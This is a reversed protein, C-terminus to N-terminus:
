KELGLARVLAEAKQAATAEAVNIAHSWNGLFTGNDWLQVGPNMIGMLIVLYDRHKNGVSLHGFKQSLKEEVTRIGNLDNCYDPADDWDEYTEPKSVCEYYDPHIKWDELAFAYRNMAEAFTPIKTSGHQKAHDYSIHWMIRPEVGMWKALAQNMEETNM